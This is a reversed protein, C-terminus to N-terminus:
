DGHNTIPCSYLSFFTNRRWVDDDKKSPSSTPAPNVRTLLHCYTHCVMPPTL